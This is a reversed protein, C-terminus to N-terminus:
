IVVIGGRQMWLPEDEPVSSIARGLVKIALRIRVTENWESSNTSTSFTAKSQRWYSLALENISISEPTRQNSPKRPTVKGTLAYEATMRRYEATAEPTGHKGCAYDKGAIRVFARGSHHRRLVPSGDANRRYARKAALAADPADAEPASRDRTGPKPPAPVSVPRAYQRM